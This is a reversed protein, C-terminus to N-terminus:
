AGHGPRITRYENERGRASKWPTHADAYFATLVRSSIASERCWNHMTLASHPGFRASRGRGRAIGTAVAGLVRTVACEKPHVLCLLARNQGQQWRM